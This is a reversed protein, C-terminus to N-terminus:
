TVGIGHESEAWMAVSDVGVELALEVLLQVFVVAVDLPVGVGYGLAFIAAHRQLLIQALSSVVIANLEAIASQNADCTWVLRQLKLEDGELKPMGRWRRLATDFEVLFGREVAEEISTGVIAILTSNPSGM